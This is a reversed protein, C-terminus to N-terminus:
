LCYGLARATGATPSVNIAGASWRNSVPASQTLFLTPAGIGAPSHDFGGSLLKRKGPCTPTIATVPLPGAPAVPGAPASGSVESASVGTACYVHGTIAHDTEGANTFSSSWTTAGTRMTQWVIPFSAPGPPASPGPSSSFGGAVARRKGLCRASATAAVGNATPASTSTVETLRLSKRKAKKTGPKNKL